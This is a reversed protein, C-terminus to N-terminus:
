TDPGFQVLEQFEPLQLLERELRDAILRHGRGNPHDDVKPAIWLEEVNIGAYIDWLDIIEFGAEMAFGRLLVADDPASLHDVTSPLYVWIPLAGAARVKQAFQLYAERVMEDAVTKLRRTIERRPMDPALGASKLPPEMFEFPLGGDALRQALDERDSIGAIDRWHAVFIVADMSRPL